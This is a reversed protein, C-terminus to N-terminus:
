GREIRVIDFNCRFVQEGVPEASSAAEVYGFREEGNERYCIVIQRPRELVSVCGFSCIDEENPSDYLLLRYEYSPLGLIGGGDRPQESLQLADRFEQTPGEASKGYLGYFDGDHEGLKGFYRYWMENELYLEIEEASCAYYAFPYDSLERDMRAYDWRGSTLSALM